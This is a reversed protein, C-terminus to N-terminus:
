LNQAIGANWAESMSTTPASIGQTSLRPLQTQRQNNGSSTLNLRYSAELGAITFDTLRPTIRAVGIDINKERARAVADEISLDVRPGATRFPPTPQTAAQQGSPATQPQLTPM